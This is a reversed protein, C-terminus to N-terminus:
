ESQNDLIIDPQSHDSSKVTSVEDSDFNFSNSTEFNEIESPEFNHTLQAQHLIRFVLQDQPEDTYQITYLLNNLYAAKALDSNAECFRYFYYQTKETYRGAGLTEFWNWFKIFRPSDAVPPYCIGCSPDEYEEPDDQPNEHVFYLHTRRRQQLLEFNFSM